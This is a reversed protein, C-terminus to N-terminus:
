PAKPEGHASHAEPGRRQVLLLAGAAVLILPWWRAIEGITGGAQRADAAGVAVLVAGPVLPWWRTGSGTAIRDVIYIAVFGLGLGLVPAFGRTEPAQLAIGLGLGTVIAGPVLLGYRGTFGYAVLFCMGILAVILEGEAGLYTTVLLGAGVVVLLAGAIVDGGVPRKVILDRM